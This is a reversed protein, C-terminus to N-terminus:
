QQVEWTEEDAAPDSTWLPSNQLRTMWEMTWEDNSSANSVSSPPGPSPKAAAACLGLAFMVVILWVILVVCLVLM